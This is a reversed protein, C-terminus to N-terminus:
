TEKTEQLLECLVLVMWIVIDIKKSKNVIIIHLVETDFM